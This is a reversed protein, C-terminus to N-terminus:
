QSISSQFEEMAKAALSKEKACYASIDVPQNELMYFTGIYRDQVNRLYPKVCESYNSLARLFHDRTHHGGLQSEDYNM